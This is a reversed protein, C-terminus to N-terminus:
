PRIDDLGALGGDTPDCPPPPQWHLEDRQCLSCVVREGCAESPVEGCSEAVGVYGDGARYGLLVGSADPAAERCGITVLVALVRVEPRRTTRRAIMARMIAGDSHRRRCLRWRAPRLHRGAGEISQRERLAVSHTTPAPM